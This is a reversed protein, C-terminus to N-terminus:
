STRGDSGYACRDCPFWTIANDIAL